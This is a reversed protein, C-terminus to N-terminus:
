VRKLISRGSRSVRAASLVQPRALFGIGILLLLLKLNAVSNSERRDPVSAGISAKACVVTITVLRVPLAVVPAFVVVYANVLKELMIVLADLVAAPTCAVLERSPATAPQENVTVGVKTAPALYETSTVTGLRFQEASMTAVTAAVPILALVNGVVVTAKLDPVPLVQTFIPSTVTVEALGVKVKVWEPPVM